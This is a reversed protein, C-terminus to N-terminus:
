TTKFYLINQTNSRGGGGREIYLMYKYLQQTWSLCECVFSNEVWFHTVPHVFQVDSTFYETIYTLILELFPTSDLDQISGSMALLWSMDIKFPPISNEDVVHM